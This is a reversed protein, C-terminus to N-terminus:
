RQLYGSQDLSGGKEWGTYQDVYPWYKGDKEVSTGCNEQYLAETGAAGSEGEQVVLVKTSSIGISLTLEASRAGGGNQTTLITVKGNNEGKDPSVSLWEEAAAPVKISWERNSLIELVSEGGEKVLTLTDQNEPVAIFPMNNEVDEDNCSWLSATMVMCFIMVFSRWAFLKRM